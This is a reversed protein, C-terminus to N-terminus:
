SAVRDSQCSFFRGNRGARHRVRARADRWRQFCGDLPRDPPREDGGGLDRGRREYTHSQTQAASAEFHLFMM